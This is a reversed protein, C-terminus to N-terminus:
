IEELIRNYHQLIKPSLTQLKNRLPETIIRVEEKASARDAISISKKLRGTDLQFLKTGLLGYNKELIADDDQLGSMSRQIIFTFINDIIEEVDSIKEENILKEITPFLLDGKKQLIFCTEKLPVTYNVNLHDTITVRYPCNLSKELHIALLASEEKFCNYALSHSLKTELFKNQDYKQIARRKNKFRTIPRVMWGNIRM